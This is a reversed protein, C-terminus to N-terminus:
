ERTIFEDLNLLVRAVSIWAARTAPDVPTKEAEKGKEDAPLVTKTSEPDAAFSEREQTLLRSLQELEIAQPSRALCLRFGLRLRDADNDPAEHLVRDALDQAFEFFAEDNLLTLAQLPTNSILRRTCTHTGDPADFVTFLPHPTARWFFTYMGRRYREPGKSAEWPRRLQGLTMVGDPQPPFVSPGGITGNLRGCAALATDRVLEADLRLRSQRALLRNTPDVSAMEPRVRSSQRYTASCVILRHM